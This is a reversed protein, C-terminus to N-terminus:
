DQGRAEQVLWSELTFDGESTFSGGWIPCGEWGPRREWAPFRRRISGQDSRSSRHTVATYDTVFVWAMCSSFVDCCPASPPSSPPSVAFPNRGHVRSRLSGALSVTPTTYFGCGNSVYGVYLYFDRSFPILCTNITDVLESLIPPRARPVSTSWVM